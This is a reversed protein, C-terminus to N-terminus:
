SLAKKGTFYISQSEKSKVNGTYKSVPSLAEQLCLEVIAKRQCTKKQLTTSPLKGM